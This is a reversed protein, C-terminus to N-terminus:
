TSPKRSDCDARNFQMRMDTLSFCEGGSQVALANKLEAKIMYSLYGKRGGDFRSFLLAEDITEAAARCPPLPPRSGCLSYITSPPTSTARRAEAAAADGGAELKVM